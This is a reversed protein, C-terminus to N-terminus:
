SKSGSPHMKRSHELIERRTEIIQRSFSEITEEKKRADMVIWTKEVIHVAAERANMESHIESDYGQPYGSM